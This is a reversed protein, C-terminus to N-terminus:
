SKYSKWYQSNRNNELLSVNYTKDIAKYSKLYLIYLMKRKIRNGFKTKIQKEQLGLITITAFWM